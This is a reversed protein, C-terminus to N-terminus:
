LVIAKWAFDVDQGPNIDAHITFQTSTYTDIYFQTMNGWAEIPTVVIDGITPTTRLGHAVAVSTTGNALTATGSTETAQNSIGHVINHRITNDHVQAAAELRIGVTPKTAEVEVIHNSVVNNYACDHCTGGSESKSLYISADDATAGAQCTKEVHNNIIDCYQSSCVAIGGGNSVTGDIDYIINNAVITHDAHQLRIGGKGCDRIINGIVTIHDTIKLPDVTPVTEGTVWIGYLTTDECVNNSIVIDQAGDYEVCIPERLCTKVFNNSIIGRGTTHQANIGHSDIALLINDTIIFGDSVGLNIGNPYAGHVNETNTDIMNNTIRINSCSPTHISGRASTLNFWICDNVRCGDIFVMDTYDVQIGGTNELLCNRIVVNSGTYGSRGGVIIGPQSQTASATNKIHVSEILQNDFVKTSSQIGRVYRNDCDIMMNKIIINNQGNYEGIRIITSRTFAADPKLITGDGVGVLTINCRNICIAGYDLGPAANKLVFTGDLLLVIGGATPLADIATQIEVEDGDGDCVYDAQQKSLASSDSAAVVLTACRGTAMEHADYIGQEIKNLNTANVRPLIRNNWVNKDYTM